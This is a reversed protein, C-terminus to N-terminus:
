KAGFHAYIIEKHDSFCDLNCIENVLEDTSLSNGDQLLSLYATAAEIVENESAAGFPSSRMEPSEASDLWIQEVPVTEEILRFIAEAEKRRSGLCDFFSMIVPNERNLSYVNQNRVQRAMWVKATKENRKRKGYKGRHAFIDRAEVRVQSAYRVLATAVNQPPTALSKKVDIKWDSDMENTIDVCIRALKYHEESRWKSVGERLGLWSGSVLLRDGRYVYFGQHANWGFPGGAEEYEARTLMDKHPLIFGQVVTTTGGFPIKTTPKPETAKHKIYFPDWPRVLHADTKGNIYIKLKSPAALFRHFIMGLHERLSDVQHYFEDRHAPSSAITGGCLKDLNELLVVTGSSHEEIGRLKEEANDRGTKLLRWENTQQSTIYDLDWRRVAVSGVKTKSAVTLSRALSLSATKLGLGFRGLDSQKRKDLPSQSGAVMARSLQNETMGRGDDRISIWSSAGAWRLTIWVNSSEATISNDILDAIASNLSYGYARLSELMAAAGPPSIEFDM